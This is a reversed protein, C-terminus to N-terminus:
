AGRAGEIPVLQGDVLRLGQAELKRLQAMVTATDAAAAARDRHLRQRSLPDLGLRTRGTAARTEARHLLLYASRVREQELDGVGNGAAAAAGILFETLLQAQAEARAWAWLAPRYMSAHVHQCSEDALVLDVLERALPEVKRPSYAGHEPPRGHGNALEHGPTFPPRQGEFAPVWSGDPQVGSAPDPLRRDEGTV